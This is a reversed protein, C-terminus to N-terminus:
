GDSDPGENDIKAQFKEFEIYACTSKLPINPCSFDLRRNAKYRYSYKFDLRM